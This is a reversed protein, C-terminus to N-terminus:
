RLKYDYEEIQKKDLYLKLKERTVDITAVVRFSKAYEGEAEFPACFIEGFINLKLDSRIFRVLHYFGTEPQKGYRKPAIETKPFKLKRNMSSLTANPTKGGLKSYRYSGNHRQEFALSGSELEEFSYMEVRRLFMSQYHGNFREVVGNRWPEAVPIFWPEIGCHLSLRILPGMGRPHLPSGYFSMANDIQINAPIGIRKWIDWMGSVVSAGSKSVSAHIGCRATALDVVNLSYFRLPGKLHRPGVHDAQHTQNPIECPLKPYPIGKPEYKGTRRHTLGNRVLIRDITRISPLPKVELNSLEWLIAQAGCFVAKNYLGLRVVKVIEEIEFPTRGPCVFPRRSRDESWSEEDCASREIWKHLWAQSRGLSTCISDRSEGKRFRLVARKREEDKENSM